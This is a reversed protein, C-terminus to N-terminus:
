LQVIKIQDANTTVDNFYVVSRVPDLYYDRDKTLRYGNKYVWLYNVDVPRRALKYNIQGGTYEDSVLNMTAYESFRTVLIEDTQSLVLSPSFVINNNDIFYETDEGEHLLYVEDDLKLKRM